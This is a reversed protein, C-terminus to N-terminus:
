RNMLMAQRGFLLLIGCVVGLAIRGPLTALLSPVDSGVLGAVVVLVVASMILLLLMNIAAERLMGKRDQNQRLYERMSRRSDMVLPAFDTSYRSTLELNRALQKFQPHEIKEGMSLVAMGVDGTLRSEAECEELAGRLPQNLYRSIQGLISGLEGGTINYNGLFDLFKMLDENVSRLNKQRALLFGFGELLVMGAVGALGPLFGALATLIGFLAAALVLNLAFLGTAGLGPLRRRLGSYDIQRDLATWLSKKKQQQQLLKRKELLEEKERRDMNRRTVLLVKEWTRNTVAAYFMAAFGVTLCVFVAGWEFYRSM